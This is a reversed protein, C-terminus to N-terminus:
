SIKLESIFKYNQQLSGQKSAYNQEMILNIKQSIFYVCNISVSNGAQKYLHCNAIKPLVFSLPFGQINFCERPTLKRFGFNTHIIPVNHGGTGMNATLTPCLNNKNVRIYKRRIQYFIFGERFKEDLWQQYKTNKYYFCGNKKTNVNIFKNLDPRPYKHMRQFNFLISDRQNRFGLIYIRERNQISGFDKANLVKFKVNYGVNELEKKILSFTKEENHSLLNKVNELVFFRPKKIRLVKVIEFFLTGRPDLFGKRNGAISFAQCPFGALLLEHDPIQHPNIKTIDGAPKEGFNAEYTQCAYKDIESSFVCKWGAERFPLGLGGIGAFLDIFTKIM